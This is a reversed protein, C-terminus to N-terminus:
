CANLVEQWRQCFNDVSHRAVLRAIDSQVQKQPLSMVMIVAEALAAPTEGRALLYPADRDLLERMAPIPVAVCPVGCAMSELATMPCGEYRSTILTMNWPTYLSAGSPHKGLFHLRGQQLLDMGEHVMQRHLPGEGVIGLQANDPLLRLTEMAFGPRKELALRGILGLLLPEIGTDGGHGAHVHLPQGPPLPALGNPIVHSTPHHSGLGRMFDLLSAETTRSVSVFADVQRYLLHLWSKKLWSSNATRLVPQLPGHVWSILPKGSLAKLAVGAYTPGFNHSALLVNSARAHHALQTWSTQRWNLCTISWGHNSLASVLTQTITQVGGWDADELLLVRRM